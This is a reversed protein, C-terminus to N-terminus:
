NLYKQFQSQDMKYEVLINSLRERGMFNLDDDWYSDVDHLSQCSVLFDRGLNILWEPIIEPQSQIVEDIGSGNQADALSQNEATLHRGILCGESIGRKETKIPSYYCGGGDTCRRNTDTTYYELADLLFAEKTTFEM